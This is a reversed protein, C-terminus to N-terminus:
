LNHYDERNSFLKLLWGGQLDILLKYFLPSFCSYQRDYPNMSRHTEALMEKVLGFIDQTWLWFM